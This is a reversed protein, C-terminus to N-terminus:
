VSGEVMFEWALGHGIVLQVSLLIAEFPLGSIDWLLKTATSFMAVVTILIYLMAVLWRNRRFFGVQFNAPTPTAGMLRVTAYTGYIGVLFFAAQWFFPLASGVQAALAMAGPLLFSLLVGWALKRKQADALLDRRQSVVTWWLGVLMMCTTSFLAYFQDINM